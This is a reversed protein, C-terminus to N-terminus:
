RFFRVLRLSVISKPRHLTYISRDIYSAVVRVYARLAFSLSFFHLRCVCWVCYFSCVSLKIQV